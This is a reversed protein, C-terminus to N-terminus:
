EKVILILDTSDAGKLQERILWLQIDMRSELRVTELGKLTFSDHVRYALFNERPGSSALLVETAQRSLSNTHALSFDGQCGDRKQHNMLRRIAGARVIKMESVRVKAGAWYPYFQVFAM